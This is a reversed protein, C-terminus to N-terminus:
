TTPVPLIKYSWKVRSAREVHLNLWPQRCWMPWYCSWLGNWFDVCNTSPGLSLGCFGNLHTQFLIYSYVYLIMYDDGFNIIYIYIYTYTYTCYIYIIYVIKTPISKETPSSSPGFIQRAVSGSEGEAPLDWHPWATPCWLHVVPVEFFCQLM